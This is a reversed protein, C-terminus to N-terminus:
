IEREGSLAASLLNRFSPMHLFMTKGFVIYPIRGARCGDRIAAVPLGTRESVDRIRLYEPDPKAMNDVTYCEMFDDGGQKLHEAQPVIAVSLTSNDLHM